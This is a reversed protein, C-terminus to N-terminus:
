DILQWEYKGKVSATHRGTLDKINQNDEAPTTFAWGCILDSEQGTVGEPDNIIADLQQASKASKWLHFHKIYGQSKRTTNGNLQYQSFAIMSFNALNNDNAGYYDEVDSGRVVRDRLVGDVYYKAVVPRGDEMEGDVGNDNYVAAIHHWEGIGDYNSGPEWLHHEKKQAYTIRMRTGDIMNIMWGARVGGNELFTSVIAGIGDPKTKLKVWLEVTFARNKPEGFSIFESSHGFDIHGGENGDVYLEAPQVPIEPDETILTAKFDEIAKKANAIAQDIESQSVSEAADISLILRGLSAMANDLIERSEDPYNGKNVGFRAEEKLTKMESLVVGLREIDANRDRQTDNKEETCAVLSLSILFTFFLKGIYHKM